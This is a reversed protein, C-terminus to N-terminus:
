AGNGTARTLAQDYWMLLKPDERLVDQPIKDAVEVITAYDSAQWARRFGARIAELRFVKLCREAYRRYEDFERLLGRTRWEDLDSAKSPDPVYWRDKAKARLIFADKPLYRLERFKDSLCAHIQRPVEGSGDYLLFNQELFASLEIMREHKQWGGLERIFQPHIEQFTQPQRALQQRLWQIATEEDRVLIELQALGRAALRRPDYEAVQESLFFMGDREPFRQTLGELFEAASLPVAVGRQVHFAVMRDFLLYSQCEAIVEARGDRAVFVPLQRMHTRVFDWASDAAGAQLRYRDELGGNPKYASIRIRAAKIAAGAETLVYRQNAANHKDSNTMRVIGADVLPLLHKRRFFTRQTVGARKTLDVLSRPVDCADIIRRQHTTMQRTTQDPDRNLRSPGVQDSVMDDAGAGVQDSRALRDGLHRALAYRDAGVREILTREALQDAVARADPGSLGTVAKIQRLRVDQERCALAFTRAEEDMLGLGLSRQFVIQRESLVAEKKLVLEFSKRRRDSLILPPVHGLQQWNRCVDRLGWGAHESLGIRRFALVIRPNRVERAGPELLDVDAAFADGPNWFVTQDAYHRIVAKRSHDSYDQHTILNVMSERFAQYDPPTDNRRLTAPDLRFPHEAFKQYWDEILSRWTRILNEDLVLRDFWRHGTDADDRTATFRQCDVVPRPLLQRFAPNTGFILVAARTPLRRGGQEVLLGMEALFDVDSMAACSRNGPRAEYVARYWRIADPDFATAPNLDVTRGDPREAAADILFGNREHDSCRVGSVTSRLFARRIDGKLVVPKQSRRVESPEDQTM